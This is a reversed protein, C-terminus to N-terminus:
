NCRPLDTTPSSAAQTVSLTRDGSIDFLGVLGTANLTTAGTLSYSRGDPRSAGVGGGGGLTLEDITELADQVTSDGSALNGTGDFSDINVESATQDDKASAEIGDLKTEDAATFRGFPETDVKWYHLDRRITYTTGADNLLTFILEAARREGVPVTAALSPNTLTVTNTAAVQGLGVTLGTNNSVSVRFQSATPDGTSILSLTNGGRIVHFGVDAYSNDGDYIYLDTPLGPFSM